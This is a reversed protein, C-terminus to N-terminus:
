RSVFSAPDGLALDITKALLTEIRNDQSPLQSSAVFRTRQIFPKMTRFSLEKQDEVSIKDRRGFNQLARNVMKGVSAKPHNLCAPSMDVSRIRPQRPSLCNQEIAMQHQFLRRATAGTAEEIEVSRGPKPSSAADFLCAAPLVIGQGFIQIQTVPRLEAAPPKSKKRVDHRGRFQWYVHISELGLLM